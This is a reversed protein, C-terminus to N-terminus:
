FIKDNKVASYTVKGEIDKSFFNIWNKLSKATIEKLANTVEINKGILQLKM